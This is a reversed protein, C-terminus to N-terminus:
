TSWLKAVVVGLVPGLAILVPIGWKAFEVLGGYAALQEDHEAVRKVLGPTGNGIVYSKLVGVDLYTQLVLDHLEQIADSDTLLWRNSESGIM